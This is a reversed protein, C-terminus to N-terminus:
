LPRGSVSHEHELSCHAPRNPHALRKDLKLTSNAPIIAGTTTNRWGATSTTGILSQAMWRRGAAVSAVLSGPKARQAVRRRSVRLVNDAPPPTYAVTTSSPAALGIPAVRMPM